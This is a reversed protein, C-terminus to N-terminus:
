KPHALANVDDFWFIKQQAGFRCRRCIMRQQPHKKPFGGHHTGAFSFCKMETESVTDVADNHTNQPQNNTGPQTQQHHHSQSGESESENPPFPVDNIKKEDKRKL